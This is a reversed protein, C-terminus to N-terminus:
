LAVEGRLEVHWENQTPYNRLLEARAENVGEAWVLVYRPAEWFPNFPPMEKTRRARLVGTNHVHAEFLKNTLLPSGLEIVPLPKDKPFLNRREVLLKLERELKVIHNEHGRQVDQANGIEQLINSERLKAMELRNRWAIVSPMRDFARPALFALGLAIVGMLAFLSIGVIVEAM